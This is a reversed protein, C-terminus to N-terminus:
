CTEVVSYHELGEIMGNLGPQNNVPGVERIIIIWSLGWNM